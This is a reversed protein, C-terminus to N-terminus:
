FRSPAAPSAIPLRIFFTSGQGEVAGFWIQGKHREVLERCLYLGLGTGAIGSARANDAQVFRGFISFQQRAPIGIGHDRVSLLVTPTEIDARITLKIAGGDPSYKIANGVLNSLVQEIRRPDVQAVLREVAPVLTLTHHETMMQQRTVVRQALAVLDTPEWRLELQGAQLGAMDLLDDTLANLRQTALDLGALAKEQWAALQPGKGRATQILLTQAFGNVIAIPTRLEHAAISIFDDKQQETEKRETIDQAAGYIRMLRDGEQGIIPRCYDRLWRVEGSRTLVRWERVDPNGACVAAVRAAILPRDDPHVATEWDYEDLKEHASRNMRTFASTTWERVVMGDPQLRYVYAHDATLELIMRAREESVRLAEKERELQAILEKIRQRARVQETVDVSLIMIGDVEDSITRIPQYVVDFYQEERTGDGRHDGQVRLEEVSLAMGTTYVQDVLQLVGHAEDEPLVERLTKGVLDRKEAIQSLPNVLELRYEPGRLVVIPTPAQMVLDYLHQRAREAEQRTTVASERASAVSGALLSSTTGIVLYLLIDTMDERHAISLEFSPSMALELLLLMGVLTAVLSPGVGWGLAVALVVLILTAAIFHFSPVLQVLVATGAVTVSQLLVAVLYGFTPHSWRGTLFSPAFTNALVWHHVVEWSRVFRPQASREGRGQAFSALPPDSGQSTVDPAEEEQMDEHRKM